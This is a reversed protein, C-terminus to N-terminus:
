SCLLPKASSRTQFEWSHIRSCRRLPLHHLEVEAKNPNRFGWWEATVCGYLILSHQVQDARQTGGLRRLHNQSKNRKERIDTNPTSRIVSIQTIENQRQKQPEVVTSVWRLGGGGLGADGCACHGERCDDM